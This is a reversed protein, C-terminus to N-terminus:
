IGSKKFYLRSHVLLGLTLLLPMGFFVAFHWGQAPIGDLAEVETPDFKMNSLIDLYKSRIFTFITSISLLSFYILSGLWAWVKQRLTGLLLILLIMISITILVIGTFDYLFVGFVPFICNFFILIHFAILYLVYLCTLVLIPIPYNEIWSSYSGKSEFIKKVDKSRYFRILLAPIAFYSSLLFIIAILGWLIPLEKATMLVFFFIISLPIGVILWSWLLVLALIRAWRLKKLHGVGLPIFIAAILYYGMIQMALNGFMFSGFGFGDYHFRGGESFFYFCYMELPGFFAALVGIVLQIFGLFIILFKLIKLKSSNKIEM